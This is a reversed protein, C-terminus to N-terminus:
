VDDQEQEEANQQQQKGEEGKYRRQKKSSAAISRCGKCRRHRERKSITFYRDCETGELHGARYCSGGQSCECKIKLKRENHLAHIEFVGGERSSIEYGNVKLSTAQGSNTPLNTDIAQPLMIEGNIVPIVYNEGKRTLETVRNLLSAPISQLLTSEDGFEDEDTKRTAFTPISYEEDDMERKAGKQSDNYKDKPRISHSSQKELLTSPHSRKM